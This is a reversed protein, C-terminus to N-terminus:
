RSIFLWADKHKEITRLQAMYAEADARNDFKDAYVRYKGDRVVQSVHPCLNRNVTNMYANAQTETPFSAIVVHYTKGTVTPKPVETIPQPEERVVEMAEKEAVNGVSPPLTETKPLIVESPIFSATYASPNVNQIPTSVLFFLAVAAASAVVTRVLSRSIPIYFVDKKKGETVVELSVAPLAPLHFATLGYSAANFVPSDGPTFVLQGEDGLSFTGVRGLELKRDQQLMTELTHIDEEMMLRAQEYEVNYARRYSETLLGDTLRLTGNFMIERRRPQFSDEESHYEASVSRSVFGGFGPLIVCDHDWLLSEIHSVIRM